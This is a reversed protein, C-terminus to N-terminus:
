LYISLKKIVKDIASEKKEFEMVYSTPKDLKILYEDISMQLIDDLRIEFEKYNSNNLKCIGNIPFDLIKILPLNLSLIKEQCGLKDRLLTSQSGIAVKSQMLGLYADYINQKEIKNNILFNFESDDLFKKYYDLELKRRSTQINDNTDLSRQLFIFKLKNKKAYRITSKVIKM